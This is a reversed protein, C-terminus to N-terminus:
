PEKVKRENFEALAQTAKETQHLAKYARYQLYHPEAKEPRLRIARELPPIASSYQKLNVYTEGLYIQADYGQPDGHVAQQLYPLAAAYDGAHCYVVGLKVLARLDRPYSRLQTQLENIAEDRRGLLDLLDGILLHLDPWHPDLLLAKQYEALADSPLNRAALVDGQFVHLIATGPQTTEMWALTKQVLAAYDVPVLPNEKRYALRAYAQGLLWVARPNRPDLAVSRELLPVAANVDGRNMALSGLAWFLLPDMDRVRAARLLKPRAREYEGLDLYALGSFLLASFEEPQVRLVREFHMLAADPKNEWYFALGLNLRAPLMDPDTRLIEQYLREATPYDDRHAAAQAQNFMQEISQSQSGSAQAKLFACATTAISIAMAATLSFRSCGHAVNAFSDRPFRITVARKMPERSYCVASEPTTVATTIARTRRGGGLAM